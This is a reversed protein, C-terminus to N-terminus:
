QAPIEERPVINYGKDRLEQDREDNGTTYLNRSGEQVGFTIAEATKGKFEPKQWYDKGERKKLDESINLLDEYREGMLRKVKWRDVDKEAWDIRWKLNEQYPPWMGRGLSKERIWDEFNHINHREIYAVKYYLQTMVTSLDPPESQAPYVQEFPSRTYIPIDFKISHRQGEGQLEVEWTDTRTPYLRYWGTSPFKWVQEVDQSGTKFSKHKVGVIKVGWKEELDKESITRLLEIESIAPANGVPGLYRTQGDTYEYRYLNGSGQPIEVTSVKGM